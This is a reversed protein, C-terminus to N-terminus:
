DILYEQVGSTCNLNHIPYVAMAPEPLGLKKIAPQLRQTMFDTMAEPSDWVDAVQLGGKDDFSCAHILGGPAINTEWKVERRVAEYMVQNIDPSTVIALIAM